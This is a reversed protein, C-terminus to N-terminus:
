CMYVRLNNCNSSNICERLFSCNIILDVNYDVSSCLCPFYDNFLLINITSFTLLFAQARLNISSGLNLINCMSRKLFVALGGHPRGSFIPPLKDDISSVAYVEFDASLNNLM